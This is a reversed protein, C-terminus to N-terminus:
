NWLSGTSRAKPRATFYAHRWGARRHTPVHDPWPAADTGFRETRYGDRILGATRREFAAHQRFVRPRGGHTACTFNAQMWAVTVDTSYINRGQHWFGERTMEDRTWRELTDTNAGEDVQWQCDIGPNFQQYGYDDVQQELPPPPLVGAADHWLYHPRYSM